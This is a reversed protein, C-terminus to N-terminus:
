RCDVLPRGVVHHVQVLLYQVPVVLNWQNHSAAGSLFLVFGVLDLNLKLLTNRVNLLFYELHVNYHVLEEVNHRCVEIPHNNLRM